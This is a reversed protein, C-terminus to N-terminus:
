EYKKELDRLAERRIIKTINRELQEHQIFLKFLLLFLASVSAYLVLDVGRGVGFFQAIRSTVNPLLIFISAAIWLASWALAEAPRIVGQLARRWTMIFAALMLSILIIQILM